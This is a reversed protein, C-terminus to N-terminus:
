WHILNFFIINTYKMTKKQLEQTERERGGEGESLLINRLKYFRYTYSVTLMRYIYLLLM